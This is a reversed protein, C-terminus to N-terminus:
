LVTVFFNPMLSREEEAEWKLDIDLLCPDVHVLSIVSLVCLINDLYVKVALGPLYASSVLGEALKM